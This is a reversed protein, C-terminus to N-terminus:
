DRRAGPWVARQLQGALRGAWGPAAADHGGVWGGVRGGVQFDSIIIGSRLSNPRAVWAAPYLFTYEDGFEDYQKLSTSAKVTPM